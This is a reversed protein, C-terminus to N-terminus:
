RQEPLPPQRPPAPETVNFEGREWRLLFERVAPPVDGIDLWEVPLIRNDPAEIELYPLSLMMRLSDSIGTLEKYWESRNFLEREAWPM